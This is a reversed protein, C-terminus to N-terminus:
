KGVEVVAKRALNRRRIVCAPCRWARGKCVCCTERKQQFAGVSQCIHGCEKVHWHVSITYVYEPGSNRLHNANIISIISKPEFAGDVFSCLGQLWVKM